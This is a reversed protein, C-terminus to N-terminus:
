QHPPKLRSALGTAARLCHLHRTEETNPGSSQGVYPSSCLPQEYWPLLQLLPMGVDTAFIEPVRLQDPGSSPRPHLCLLHSLRQRGAAKCLAHHLDPHISDLVGAAQRAHMAVQELQVWDHLLIQLHAHSCAHWTQIRQM